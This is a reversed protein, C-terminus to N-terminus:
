EAYVEAIAERLVPLDATGFRYRVCQPQAVDGDCAREVRAFVAEVTEAGQLLIAYAYCAAQLVHKRKLDDAAEGDSGGTKYDVVSAHM